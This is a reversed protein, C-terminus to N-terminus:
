VHTTETCAPFTQLEHGTLSQSNLLNLEGVPILTNVHVVTVTHKRSCSLCMSTITTFIVVLLKFL